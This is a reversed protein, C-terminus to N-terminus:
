PVYSGIQVKRYRHQSPAFAASADPVSQDLMISRGLDRLPANADYNQQALATYKDQMRNRRNRDAVQEAAAGYDFIDDKHKSLWDLFGGSKGGDPSGQPSGTSVSVPRFRDGNGSPLTAYRPSGDPNTGIQVPPLQEDMPEGAAEGNPNFVTSMASGVGKLKDPILGGLKSGLASAGPLKGALPLADLPSFRQGSVAKGGVALAAGLVPNFMGVVPATKAALKGTGKISSKLGSMSPGKGWRDKLWSM